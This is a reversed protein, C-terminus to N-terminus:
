CQHVYGPQVCTAPQLARPPCTSPSSIDYTVHQLPLQPPLVRLEVSAEPEMAGKLPSKKKGVQKQRLGLATVKRFTVDEGAKANQVIEEGLIYVRGPDSQRVLGKVEKAGIGFNACLLCKVFTLQIFTHSVEM